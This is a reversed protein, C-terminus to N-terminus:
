ECKSTDIIGKIKDPDPHIGSRDVVHGLFKFSFVCKDRNLTMASAQIRQLVAKLRSDHEQQTAGHVLIDDMLCVAGQVGALIQSMQRQFIEPASTIGFPLRHFCYRGYPILFTTLPASETSLPIQWFGSNADLKSFVTAGALQALVQDVAPLPHRVSENLKM